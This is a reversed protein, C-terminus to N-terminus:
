LVPQEVEKGELADTGVNGDNRGEKYAALQYQIWGADLLKQEEADKAEERYEPQVSHEAALAHTEYTDVKSKEIYEQRSNDYKSSQHQHKLVVVYLINIIQPLQVLDIINVVGLIFQHGSLFILEM